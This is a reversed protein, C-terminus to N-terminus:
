HNQRTWGSCSPVTDLVTSADELKDMESTNFDFHKEHLKKKFVPGKKLRARKVSREEAAVKDQVLERKLSQIEDHM